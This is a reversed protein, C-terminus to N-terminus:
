IAEWFKKIIRKLGEKGGHIWMLLAYIYFMGVVGGILFGKMFIDVNGM